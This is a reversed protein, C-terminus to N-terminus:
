RKSEFDCKESSNVFLKAPCKDSDAKSTPRGQPSKFKKRKTNCKAKLVTESLKKERGNVIFSSFKNIPLKERTKM